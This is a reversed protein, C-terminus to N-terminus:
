PLLHKTGASRLLLPAAHSHTHPYKCQYHRTPSLALYSLNLISTAELHATTDNSIMCCASTLVADRGEAELQTLPQGLVSMVALYHAQFCNQYYYERCLLLQVTHKADLRLHEIRVVKGGARLALSSSMTYLGTQCCSSTNTNLHQPRCANNGHSGCPQCPLM